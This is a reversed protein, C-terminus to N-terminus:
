TFYPVEHVFRVYETIKIFLSCSYSLAIEVLVSRSIGQNTNMQHWVRYSGILFVVEGVILGKVVLKRTAM